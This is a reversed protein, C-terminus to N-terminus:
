NLKLANLAVLIEALDRKRCLAKGPILKIFGNGGYNLSSVSGSDKM